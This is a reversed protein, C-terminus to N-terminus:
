MGGEKRTSRPLLRYRRSTLHQLTSGFKAAVEQVSYGYHSACEEYVELLSSGAQLRAWIAAGFPPVFLTHGTDLSLLIIAGSEDTVSSFKSTRV